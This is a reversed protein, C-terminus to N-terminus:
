KTIRYSIGLSIGIGIQAGSNLKCNKDLSVGYGIYPGVTVDLGFKKPKQIITEREKLYNYDLYVADISSYVGHYKIDIIVESSDNKITDSYQKNEIPLNVYVSDTVTDVVCLVKVVTDKTNVIKTHTVIREKEVTITDHIPIYEIKSEQNRCSPINILIGIVIGICIAILYKYINSFVEKM